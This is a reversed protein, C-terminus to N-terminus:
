TAAPVAQGFTLANGDPDRLQFERMGYPEDQPGLAVTAGRGLLEAHLADVAPTFVYVSSAGAGGKGWAAPMLHLCVSDRQVMAYDAPEGMVFGVSFGLRDRYFALAAAVETVTFVAAFGSLPTM